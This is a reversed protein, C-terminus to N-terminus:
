PLRGLVDALVSAAGDPDVLTPVTAGRRDVVVGEPRADVLVSAQDAPLAVTSDELVVPLGVADRLREEVHPVGEAGLEDSVLVFTCPPVFGLLDAGRVVSSLRDLVVQCAPSAAFDDAGGVRTAVVGFSRRDALLGDIRSRLM